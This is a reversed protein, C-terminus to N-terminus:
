THCRDPDPGGAIDQAPRLIRASGAATGAHSRRIRGHGALRQWRDEVQAEAHEREATVAAGVQTRISDLLTKAQQLRNGRYVDPDDLIAQLQAAESGAAYSFNADQVALYQRADAYIQRQAGGMLRRIPDIITEKADLLSEMQAPLDTLYFTYPKGVLGALAGLPADLAALFPFAAQQAALQLLDTHLTGFAAATEQALTKAENGHAPLGFYEGYFEKLRRVQAATFDVQPTIVVNAFDHTNRLSAELAADELLNADRRLEVKGLACLRALNCQVAALSWGYPKRQFRTVLSQLTTRQGGRQNAQIHALLEGEAERLNAGGLDLTGAPRLYRGIDAEGYAIGRLMGLNPYTRVLLDYFGSVIRGRPESGGIDLEQGDVVLVAQTALEVLLTRLRVLRQANQAQKEMLIRRLSEVQATTLNQRIYKDARKYLLVDAALRDSPPLVVLLESRGMSQAKLVPLNGAHEHFPTVLNVALEQDKSQLQGDVKRAFVYDQGNADYRIKRDKLVQDFFLTDLEAAVGDSAVETNKIEQEVDKEENTLYEYEDGVRQVYTQQELLNLAEEIQKRRAPLDVGFAPLLLVNLNRLTAKFERSM